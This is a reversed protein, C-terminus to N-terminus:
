GAAKRDFSSFMDLLPQPSTPGFMMELSDASEQASSRARPFMVKEYAALAAEVDGAHEVLAAALDTGDIMALNAGEGAFPSMVHAADGLLTVGPVRQWSHGIPLAHIPRPVLADDADAILERLRPDWGEFHQLM